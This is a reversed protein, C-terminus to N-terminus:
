DHSEYANCEEKGLDHLLIGYNRAASFKEGGIAILYSDFLRKLKKWPLLPEGYDYLFQPPQSMSTVAMKQCSRTCFEEQNSHYPQSPCLCQRTYIAAMPDKLFPFLKSTPVQPPKLQTTNNVPSGESLVPPKKQPKNVIITRNKGSRM